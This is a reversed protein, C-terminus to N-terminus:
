ACALGDPRHYTAPTQRGTRATWVSRPRRPQTNHSDKGALNPVSRHFRQANGDGQEAKNRQDLGYSLHIAPHGYKADDRQNGGERRKTRDRYRTKELNEDADKRNLGDDEPKRNHDGAGTQPRFIKGRFQRRFRQRERDRDERDKDIGHRPQAGDFLDHADGVAIEVGAFHRTGADPRKGSVLRQLPADGRRHDHEEDDDILGLNGDRYPQIEEIAGPEVGNLLAVFGHEPFLKQEHERRVSKKQHTHRNDFQEHLLHQHQAPASPQGIM